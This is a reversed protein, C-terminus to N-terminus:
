WGAGAHSDVGFSRTPQGRLQHLDHPLGPERVCYAQVGTRHNGTYRGAGGGGLLGPLYTAQVMASYRGGVPV